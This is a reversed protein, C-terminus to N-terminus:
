KIHLDDYPGVVVQGIFQLVRWKMNLLREYDVM